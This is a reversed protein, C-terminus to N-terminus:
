ANCHVRDFIIKEKLQMVIKEQNEYHDYGFIHLLGHITLIIIENLVSHNHSISQKLATPYSIFIEGINNKLVKNLMFKDEFQVNEDLNNDEFYPFALVDTSENIGAYKYNIEKIIEDSVFNLELYSNNIDFNYDTNCLTISILKNFINVYNNIQFDDSLYNVNGEINHKEKDM